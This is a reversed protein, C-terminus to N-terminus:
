TRTMRPFGVRYPVSVAHCLVMGSRFRGPARPSRHPEAVPWLQGGRALRLLHARGDHPAPVQELLNADVLSAAACSVKMKDMNTRETVASPTIAGFRGVLAMVRWEAVSLGFAAECRRAFLRTTRGATISLEYSLFEEVPFDDVSVDDTDGGCVDTHTTGMAEM